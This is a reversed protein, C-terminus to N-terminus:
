SGSNTYLPSFNSFVVSVRVSKNGESGIYSDQLCNKAFCRSLCIIRTRLSYVPVLKPSKMRLIFNFFAALLQHERGNGTRELVIRKSICWPSRRWLVDSLPLALWVGNLDLALPLLFILGGSVIVSGLDLASAGFGIAFIKGIGRGM